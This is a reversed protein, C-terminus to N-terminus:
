FTFEYENIQKNIESWVLMYYDQSFYDSRKQNHGNTATRIEPVQHIHLAYKNFLAINCLFFASVYTWLM